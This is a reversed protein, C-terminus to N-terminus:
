VASLRVVRLELSRLFYGCGCFTPNVSYMAGLLVTESGTYCIFGKSCSNSSGDMGISLSDCSM